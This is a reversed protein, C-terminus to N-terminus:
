IKGTMVTRVQIPDSRWEEDGEQLRTSLAKREFEIADRATQLEEITGKLRLVKEKLTWIRLAGLRYIANIEQESWKNADNEVAERVTFPKVEGFEPIRQMKIVGAAEPIYDLANHRDVMDATVAYWLAKLQKNRHQHRKDRDRKLDQMTVKIEYESAYGSKSIVLLDCEHLGAGWSVNPVILQRRPDLMRKLALEIDLSTIKKV